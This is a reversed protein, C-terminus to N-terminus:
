NVKHSPTGCCFDVEVTQVIFVFVRVLDFGTVRCRRKVKAFIRTYTNPLTEELTSISLTQLLVDDDERNLLFVM